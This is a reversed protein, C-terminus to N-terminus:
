LPCSRGADSEVDHALILYLREAEEYGLALQGVKFEVDPLLLRIARASSWRGQPRLGSARLDLAPFGTLLQEILMALAQLQEREVWLWASADTTRALLRFARRGPPGVADAEIRVSWVSSPRGQRWRDDHRRSVVVFSSSLM